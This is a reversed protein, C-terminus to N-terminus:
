SYQIWNPAIKPCYPESLRIRVLVRNLRTGSRAEWKGGGVYTRVVYAVHYHM